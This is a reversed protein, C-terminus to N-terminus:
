RTRNGRRTAKSQPIDAFFHENRGKSRGKTKKGQLAEIKRRKHRKFLNGTYYMMKRKEQRQIM